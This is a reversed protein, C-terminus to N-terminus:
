YICLLIYPNIKTNIYTYMHVDCRCVCISAHMVDNCAYIVFTCVCMCVCMCLHLLAHVCANCEDCVFLYMCVHMVYLVHM